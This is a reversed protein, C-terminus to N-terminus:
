GRIAVTRVESDYSSSSFEDTVDDVYRVYNNFEGEGHDHDKFIVLAEPPMKRLEKILQKVTLKSM